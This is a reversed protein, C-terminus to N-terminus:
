ITIFNDFKIYQEKNLYTNIKEKLPKFNKNFFEEESLANISNSFANYNDKNNNFYLELNIYKSSSNLYKNKFSKFKEPKDLHSLTNMIYKILLNPSKIKKNYFNNYSNQFETFIKNYRSIYLKIINALQTYNHKNLEKELQLLFYESHKIINEIQLNKNFGYLSKYEEIWHETPNLTYIRYLEILHVSYLRILLEYQNELYNSINNIYKKFYQKKNKKIDKHYLYNSFTFKFSIQLIAKARPMIYIETTDNIDSENKIISNSNKNYLFLIHGYKGMTPDYAETNKYYLNILHSKLLESILPNLYNFDDKIDAYTINSNNTLYALILYDIDCGINNYNNELNKIVDLPNLGSISLPFKRNTVWGYFLTHIYTAHVDKLNIKNELIWHSFENIFQLAFRISHNSLMFINAHLLEQGKINNKLQKIISKLTNKYRFLGKPPTTDKTTDKYWKEIRESYIDFIVKNNQQFKDKDSIYNNKQSVGLPSIPFSVHEIDIDSSNSVLDYLKENRVSILVKFNNNTQPLIQTNIAELIKKQKEAAYSDLNDYILFINKTLYQTIFLILAKFTDAKNKNSHEKIISYPPNQTYVDTIFKTIEVKTSASDIQYDINFVDVDILALNSLSLYYCYFEHSLIESTMYKDKLITIIEQLLETDISNIDNLKKTDFNKYIINEISSNLKYEPSLLIHFLLTTKGSGAWGSIFIKNYDKIYKLLYKEINRKIYINKPFVIDECNLFNCKKTINELHNKSLYISTESKYKEYM